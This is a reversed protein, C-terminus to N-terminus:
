RRSRHLQAINQVRGYFMKVPGTSFFKESLADPLRERRLQRRARRRHGAVEEGRREGCPGQHFFAGKYHFKLVCKDPSRYVPHVFIFIEILNVIIFRAFRRIDGGMNQRHINVSKAAFGNESQFGNRLQPKEKKGRAFDNINLYHLAGSKEFCQLINNVPEACTIEPGAPARM